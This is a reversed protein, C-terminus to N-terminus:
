KVTLVFLLRKKHAQKSADDPINDHHTSSELLERLKEAKREKLASQVHPQDIRHAGRVAWIPLETTITLLTGAKHVNPCGCAEISRTKSIVGPKTNGM